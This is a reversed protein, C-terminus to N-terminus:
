YPTKPRVRPVAQKPKLARDLFDIAEDVTSESLFFGSIHGRAPLWHIKPKEGYRAYAAQMRLAHDPPVLRDRTAHYIFIPPNNKGVHYLPSADLFVEPIEEKTSGLFAPLLDGGPYFTLDFPAGGAVIARVRAERSPDNLAVQAALHGGASYGFTAIRDPDIGYLDARERMWRIAERMDDLPAPYRYGPVTRYTVNVVVYGRRALKRAIGNMLWRGDGGRWAGGHILLVAPAPSPSRARYVDARLATPWNEPTYVVDRAVRFREGSLSPPGIPSVCANLLACAIGLRILKLSARSVVSFM